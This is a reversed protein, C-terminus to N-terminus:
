FPLDLDEADVKVEGLHSSQTVQRAPPQGYDEQASTQPKDKYELFEVQEAIVKVATVRNGERNDYSSQELRGIVGLRKGKAAYQAVHEATKRWTDIIFFDAGKDKNIRDVALAFTCRATGESTYKLELEKTPRGTLIVQNM